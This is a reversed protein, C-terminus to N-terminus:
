KKRKGNFTNGLGYSTSLTSSSPGSSDPEYSYSYSYLSVKPFIRQKVKGGNKNEKSKFPCVNCTCCDCSVNPNSHINCPCNKCGWDRPTFDRIPCLRLSLNGTINIEQSNQKDLIGSLTMFKDLQDPNTLGQLLKFQEPTINGRNYINANGRSTSFNTSRTFGTPYMQNNNINNDMNINNGKNKSFSYSDEEENNNNIRSIMKTKYLTQALNNSQRVSGYITTAGELGPNHEMSTCRMKSNMGIHDCGLLYCPIDQLCDQCYQTGCHACPFCPCCFTCNPYGLFAHFECFDIINDKNIDLRKVIARIDGATPNMGNNKLFVNISDGTICAYYKLVHFASHINFDRKHKIEDFLALVSRALLIEQELLHYLKRDVKVNLEEDQKYKPVNPMEKGPHVMKFIEGYRLAFDHDQDYFLILLKIEVFNVELDNSLLYKQIDKPTILNDGNDDLKKFIAQIDYSDENSIEKRAEEVNREGKALALLIRALLNQTDESLM